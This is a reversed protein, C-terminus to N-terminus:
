VMSMALCWYFFLVMGVGAGVIGVLIGLVVGGFLWSFLWYAIGVAIAELILAILTIMMQGYCYRRNSFPAGTLKEWWGEPARYGTSNLKRAWRERFTLPKGNLLTTEKM